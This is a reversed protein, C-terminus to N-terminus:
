HTKLRRTYGVKTQQIKIHSTDFDIILSGKPKYGLRTTVEWGTIKEKSLDREIVRRDASYYKIIM